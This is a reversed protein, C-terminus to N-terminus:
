SNLKLAVVLPFSMLFGLFILGYGSFYFLKHKKDMKSTGFLYFIGKRIIHFKASFFLTFGITVSIIVLNLFVMPNSQAFPIFYVITIGLIM